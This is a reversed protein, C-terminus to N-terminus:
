VCLLFKVVPRWAAPTRQSTHSVLCVPEMGRGGRTHPGPFGICATYRNAIATLVAQPIRTWVPANGGCKGNVYRVVFKFFTNFDADNKELCDRGSM